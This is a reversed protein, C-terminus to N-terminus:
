DWYSGDMKIWSCSELERQAMSNISGMKHVETIISWSCNLLSMRESKRIVRKVTGMELIGFGMPEDGRISEKMVVIENVDRVRTVKLEM